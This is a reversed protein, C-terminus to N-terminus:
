DVIAPKDVSSDTGAQEDMLAVLESRVVNRVEPDQVDKGLRTLVRTIAIDLNAVAQRQVELHAEGLKASIWIKEIALLRDREINQLKIYEHMRSESIVKHNSTSGVVYGGDGSEVVEQTKGWVLESEKLENIKDDYYQIRALTRRLETDLATIPSAAPDDRRVVVDRFRVDLTLKKEILAQKTALSNRAAIPTHAKCTNFGVMAYSKCREGTSKRVKICRGNRPLPTVKRGSVSGTPEISDSPM